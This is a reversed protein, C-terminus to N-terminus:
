AKAECFKKFDYAMSGFANMIKSIGPIWHQFIIHQEGSIVKHRVAANGGEPLDILDFMSRDDIIVYMTNGKMGDFQHVGLFVSGYKHGRM